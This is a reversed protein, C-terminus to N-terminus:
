VWLTVNKPFGTLGYQVPPQETDSERTFMV